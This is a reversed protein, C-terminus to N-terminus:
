EPTVPQQHFSALTSCHATTSPFFRQNDAKEGSIRKNLVCSAECEGIFDTRRHRKKKSYVYPIELVITQTVPAQMCSSETDDTKSFKRYWDRSQAQAM